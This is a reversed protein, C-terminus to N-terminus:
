HRGGVRARSPRTFANLEYSEVDLVFPGLAFTLRHVRVCMAIHSDYQGQEMASDVGNAHIRLNVDVRLRVKSKRKRCASCASEILTRKPKKGLNPHRNPDQHSFPRGQAPYTDQNSPAAALPRGSGSM